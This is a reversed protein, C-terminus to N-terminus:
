VARRSRTGIVEDFFSFIADATERPQEIFIMHPAGSLEMYRAGPIADAIARVIAPPSSLDLEGAVCITPASIQHLRPHADLSSIARWAQAWGGVNDTLLRERAAADGGRARFADTFWRKLTADLIAQMGGTEADTARQATIKRGEPTHTSPCACLALATVDEPYKLAFEQATMGGFSFGVIAAPLMGAYRLTEHVDGVFDPFGHAPPAAPSRGHGRLDVSLIRYRDKGLQVIPRLFTLDLGVPHLMVVNPGTGAIEHNLIM